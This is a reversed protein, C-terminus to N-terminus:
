LALSDMIKSWKTRYCSCDGGYKQIETASDYRDRDTGFAVLLRPAFKPGAGPFSSFIIADAQAGYAKIIIKDFRDISEILLKLQPIFTEILLQNPEIIGLDDTLAVAAKIEKIRREIVEKSRSNHQHFFNMITSKRAKKVFTLSTCIGAMTFVSKLAIPDGM